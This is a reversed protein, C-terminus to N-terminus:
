YKFSKLIQVTTFIDKGGKRLYDMRLDYGGGVRSLVQYTGDPYRLATLCTVVQDYIRM